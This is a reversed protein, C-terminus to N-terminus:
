TKQKRAILDQYHDILQITRLIPFGESIAETMFNHSHLGEIIRSLFEPILLVEIENNWHLNTKTSRTWGAIAIQNLKEIPSGIIVEYESLSFVFKKTLFRKKREEWSEADGSTEIHILEHGKPKFALVDLEADWGGKSRKHAKVNTRVFYGSYEYWESALKELYNM